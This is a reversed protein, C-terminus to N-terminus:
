NNDIEEKKKWVAACCLRDLFDAYFSEEKLCDKVMITNKRNTIMFGRVELETAVPQHMHGIHAFQDCINAVISFDIRFCSDGVTHYAEEYGEFEEALSDEEGEDLLSVKNLHYLYNHMENRMGSYIYNLLSGKSEAFAGNAILTLAKLVGVSILDDRENTSAYYHKRQVISALDMLKLSLMDRDELDKKTLSFSAM